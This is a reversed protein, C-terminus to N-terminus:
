SQHSKLPQKKYSSFVSDQINLAKLDEPLNPIETPGRRPKPKDVFEDPLDPLVSVRRTSIDPPPPGTFKSSIEDVFLLEALENELDEDYDPSSLPKSIEDQIDSLDELVESINDMTNKIHDDSLGSEKVTQLIKCGDRFADVIEADTRADHIRAILTQVSNLTQSRKAMRKEIEKRKRLWSRAVERLGKTLSSKAKKTIDNRTDELQELDKILLEEQRTLKYLGEEVETFGDIGYLSLKVILNPDMLESNNRYAAKRISKLWILALKVSDKTLNKNDTKQVCNKVIDGIPLISTEKKDDITSLIIDGLKKVMRLHVYKVEKNITDNSALGVTKNYFWTVPGKLKNVAWNTWSENCDKIFDDELVIERNKYLEQMVSPLCLPVRDNRKFATSLDYISFSCRMTYSLWDWILGKWFSFKSDWDQINAVRNRFQAFLVNMREDDKWCEPMKNLPLPLDNAGSESLGTSRNEM